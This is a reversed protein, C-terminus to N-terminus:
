KLMCLIVLIILEFVTPVCPLVPLMVGVNGSMEKEEMNRWAYLSTLVMSLLCVLILDHVVYFTESYYVITILVGALCFSFFFFSLLHINIWCILFSTIM